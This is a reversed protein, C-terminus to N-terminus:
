PFTDNGQQFLWLIEQCGEEDGVADDIYGDDDQGIEEDIFHDDEFFAHAAKFEYYLQDQYGEHDDEESLDHGLDPGCLIIELEGIVSGAHNLESVKKEAPDASPGDVSTVSQFPEEAAFLRSEVQLPQGGFLFLADELAKDLEAADGYLLDHAGAQFDMADVVLEIECPKLLLHLLKVIGAQGYIALAQIVQGTHDMCFVQHGIEVLRIVEIPMLEDARGEEHVFMLQNFVEQMLELLFADVEGDDYILEAAGAADDGQFVDHLLDDPIYVVLEVFLVAAVPALFVAGEYEFAPGHEVIYALGHVEGYISEVVYFPVAVGQCTKDELQGPIDGLGIIHDGAAIEIEGYEVSVAVPYFLYLDGYFRIRLNFVTFIKAARPIQQM